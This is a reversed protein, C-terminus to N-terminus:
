GDPNTSKMQKLMEAALRISEPKVDRSAKFLMRLEPNNFVEQAIMASEVDFYFPQLESESNKKQPVDFGMVWLPDLHYRNAIKAATVNGPANSGNVYQSISAKAIGCADAFDQQSGNAYDAILQRIREQSIRKQESTQTKKM